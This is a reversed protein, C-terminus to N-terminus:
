ACSAEPPPPYGTEAGEPSRERTERSPPGPPPEPTTRPQEWPAKKPGECYRQMLIQVNLGRAKCMKEPNRDDRKPSDAREYRPRAAIWRRDRRIGVRDRMASFLDSCHVTSEACAGVEGPHSSGRPSDRVDGWNPSFGTQFLKRQVRRLNYAHTITNSSYEGQRVTAPRLTTVEVETNRM